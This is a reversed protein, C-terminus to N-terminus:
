RGAEHAHGLQLRDAGLAVHGEALALPNPRDVERGGASRQEVAVALLERQGHVLRREVGVGALDLVRDGHGGVERRDEAM